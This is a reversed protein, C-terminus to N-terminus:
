NKKKGGRAGGHPQCNQKQMFLRLLLQISQWSKTCVYMDTSRLIFQLLAGELVMM